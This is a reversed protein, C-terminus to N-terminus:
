RRVVGQAHEAPPALPRKEGKRVESQASVRRGKTFM